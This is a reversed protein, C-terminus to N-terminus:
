TDLSGNDRENRWVIPEETSDATNLELFGLNKDLENNTLKFKIEFKDGFRGFM